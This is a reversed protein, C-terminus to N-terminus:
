AEYKQNLDTREKEIEKERTQWKELNLLFDQSQKDRERNVQENKLQLYQDMKLIMSKWLMEIVVGSM